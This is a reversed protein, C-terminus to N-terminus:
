KIYKSTVEYGRGDKTTKIIRAIRYGDELYNAIFDKVQEAGYAYENKDYASYRRDIKELEIRYTM